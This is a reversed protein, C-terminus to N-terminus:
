HHDSHRSIEFLMTRGLIHNSNWSHQRQAREYNGNDNIKRLLGYHEIYNVTELMLIGFVAATLFYFMTQM